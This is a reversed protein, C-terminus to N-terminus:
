DVYHERLSAKLEFPVHGTVHLDAPLSSDPMREARWKELSEVYAWRYYPGGGRRSYFVGRRSLANTGKMNTYVLLKHM